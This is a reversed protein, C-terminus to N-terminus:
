KRKWNINGENDCMIWDEKDPYGHWFNEPCIKVGRNLLAPKYSFSSKSTILVDAYVMHLFSEKAGMDMCWHLNGYPEFERFDDPQGQSFFYIHIPKNQNKGFYEVTQRLVKEFYDNSLFRMTLNENKSDTVIDGRRVHMAINFNDLEYIINDKNRAATNYFKTQIEDIVGYQDRYFQDQECLIIVREGSYTSIINKVLELSPSDSERFLPIRHVQWGENKLADVHVENDGFGLFEEWSANSFPLHAFKLHFQKAWWYGAIWNAIQHGIGAGPNPRATFYITSSDVCDVKGKIRYRWYSPYIWVGLFKIGFLHVKACIKAYTLRRIRSIFHM